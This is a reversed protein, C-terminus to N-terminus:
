PEIREISLAAKCEALPEIKKTCLATEYEPKIEVSTDCDPLAKTPLNTDCQPLAKTPLVMDCEPPARNPLATECEPEDEGSATECELLPKIREILLATKREPEIEESATECTPQLGEALVSRVISLMVSVTGLGKAAALGTRCSRVKVM